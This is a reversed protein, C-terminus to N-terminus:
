LKSAIDQSDHLANKRRFAKFIGTAIECAWRTVTQSDREENHLTFQLTAATTMTIHSPIDDFSPLFHRKSFNNEIRYVSSSSGILFNENNESKLYAFLISERRCQTLEKSLIGVDAKLYFSKNRRADRSFRSKPSPSSM